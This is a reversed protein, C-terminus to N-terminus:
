LIFKMLSNEKLVKGPSFDRLCIPSELFETSFSSLFSKDPSKFLGSKTTSSNDFCFFNLRVSSAFDILNIDHM